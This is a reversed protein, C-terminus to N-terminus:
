VVSKRDTKNDATSINVTATRGDKSFTLQYTDGYQTSEGAQWGQAVMETQFFKAVNAASDTTEFSILEGMQLRNSINPPLPIDAGAAQQQACIEPLDITTNDAIKTVNYEWRLNSLVGALPTGDESLTDGTLTGNIEGVHRVVVTPNSAVWIEGTAQGQYSLAQESLNFTYRDTTFGNVRVGREALTADKLDGILSDPTVMSSTFMDSGTINLCNRDNGSEIYQYAQDGIQTYIIRSLGTDPSESEIILSRDGNQLRIELFNLKIPEDAKGETKLVGDIKMEVQVNGLAAFDTEASTIPPREATERTAAPATTPAPETAAPRPTRTPRAQEATPTPTPNSATGGGCAVLLVVLVASLLALFPRATFM